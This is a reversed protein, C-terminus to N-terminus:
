ASGRTKIDFFPITEVTKGGSENSIQFSELQNLSKKVLAYTDMVGCGKSYLVTPIGEGKVAFSIDLAQVYELVPADTKGENKFYATWEVVDSNAFQLAEVRFQLGSKPDTWSVVYETSMRDLEKTDIKKTWTKLLTGSGQRDYVFSVPLQAHDNLLHEKLWPNNETRQRQAAGDIQGTIRGPCCCPRLKHPHRNWGLDGPPSQDTSSDQKGYKGHDKVQRM